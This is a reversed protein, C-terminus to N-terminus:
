FFLNPPHTPSHAPSVDGIHIYRISFVWPTPTLTSRRFRALPPSKRKSICFHLALFVLNRPM